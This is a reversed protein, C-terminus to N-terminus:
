RQLVTKYYQIAAEPEHSDFLLNALQLVSKVDSPNDKVLKKLGEIEHVLEKSVNEKSPTKTSSKTPVDTPIPPHNPPMKTTPQNKNSNGSTMIVIVIVAALVGVIALYLKNNM